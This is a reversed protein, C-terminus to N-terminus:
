DIWAKVAESQLPRDVLLQNAAEIQGTLLEIGSAMDIPDISKKSDKGTPM